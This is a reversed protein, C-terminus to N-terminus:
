VAMRRGLILATFLLCALGVAAPFLLTTWSYNELALVVFGNRVAGLTFFLANEEYPRDYAKRVSPGFGLLDVATLVIVASLPTATLYWLPLASLALLLFVWDMRTFRTDGSRRWALAAVGITIIGSVAIPWAGVGAGDALQALAVVLTGAGWIIWSFVHPRTEGRLIARIYPYFAVFTLAM